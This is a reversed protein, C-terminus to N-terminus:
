FHLFLPFLLARSITTQAKKIKNQLPSPYFMLWFYLILQLTGPVATECNKVRKARETQPNNGTFLFVQLKLFVECFRLMANISICPLWLPIKFQM